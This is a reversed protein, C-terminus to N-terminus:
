TTWLWGDNLGLIGSSVLGTIAERTRTARRHKECTLASAGRIVAVELGICPRLPPAGPKGTIGEKFM